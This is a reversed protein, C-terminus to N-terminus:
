KTELQKPKTQSQNNARFWIWESYEVNVPWLNPDCLKEFNSLTVGVKFSAYDRETKPRLKEVIIESDKGLAQKIHDTLDDETTSKNLRWVHLFKRREVAKLGSISNNGGKKISESRRNNKKVEIWGNDNREGVKMDATKRAVAAYSSEPRHQSTAQSGNVMNINHSAAPATTCKPITPVPEGLSQQRQYYTDIDCCEKQENIILRENKLSEMQQEYSSCKMNAEKLEQRLKCNEAALIAVTAKIEQIINTEFVSIKALIVSNIKDVIEDSTLSQVKEQAVDEFGAARVGRVPTDDTVRVRQTVNSCSECKFTRKLQVQEDQFAAQTINVCRYHYKEM